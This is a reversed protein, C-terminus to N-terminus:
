VGKSLRAFTIALFDALGGRYPRHSVSPQGGWHPAAAGLPLVTFRERNKHLYRCLQRWREQNASLAAYRQPEFISTVDAAM